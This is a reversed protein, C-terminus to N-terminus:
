KELVSQYNVDSYTVMDRYRKLTYPLLLLLMSLTLLAGLLSRHTSQGEIHFGIGSGFIDAIKIYNTLSKCGFKNKTRMKNM